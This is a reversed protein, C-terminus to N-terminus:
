IVYTFYRVWISLLLEINVARWDVHGSAMENLPIQKCPLGGAFMRRGAEDGCHFLLSLLYKHSSDIFWHFDTRHYCWSAKGARRTWLYLHKQFLLSDPISLDCVPPNVLARLAIVNLSFDKPACQCRTSSLRTLNQRIGCMAQCPSLCGRWIPEQCLCKPLEWKSVEGSRDTQGCCVGGRIPSAQTLRSPPGASQLWSEPGDAPSFPTNFEDTKNVSSTPPPHLEWLAPSFGASPLATFLLQNPRPCPSGKLWIFSGCIRM